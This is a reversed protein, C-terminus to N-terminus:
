LLEGGGIIHQSADLTHGLNQKAVVDIDLSNVSM